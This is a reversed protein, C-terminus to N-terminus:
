CTTLAQTTLSLVLRAINELLEFYLRLLSFCLVELRKQHIYYKTGKPRFMDTQGSAIRKSLSNDAFRQKLAIRKATPGDSTVLVFVAFM